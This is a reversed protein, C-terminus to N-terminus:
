SRKSGKLVGRSFQYEIGAQCDKITADGTKHQQAAEIAFALLRYNTMTGDDLKVRYVKTETDLM